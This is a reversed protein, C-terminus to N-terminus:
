FHQACYAGKQGVHLMGASLVTYGGPEYITNEINGAHEISTMWLDFAEQGTFPPGPVVSYIGYGNPDTGIPDLPALSNATLNEGGSLSINRDDFEAPTLDLLNYTTTVGDKSIRGDADRYTPPY